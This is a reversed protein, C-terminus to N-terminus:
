FANTSAPYLSNVSLSQLFRQQHTRFPKGAHLNAKLFIKTVLRGLSANGSFSNKAATGIIPTLSDPYIEGIAINLDPLSLRAMTRKM